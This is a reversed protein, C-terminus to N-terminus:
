KTNYNCRSAGKLILKILNSTICTLSCRDELFECIPWAIVILLVPTTNPAETQIATHFQICCHCFWSLTLQLLLFHHCYLSGRLINTSYWNASSRCSMRRICQLLFVHAQKLHQSLATCQLRSSMKCRGSAYFLINWTGTFCIIFYANHFLPTLTHKNPFTHTCITLKYTMLLGFTRLMM